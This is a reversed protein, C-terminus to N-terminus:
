DGLMGEVEFALNGQKAPSWVPSSDAVQRAERRRASLTSHFPHRENGALNLPLSLTGILEEEANWPETSTVWCVFANERMWASLSAEGDAFTRRWGSGV